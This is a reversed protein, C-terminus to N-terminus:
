YNDIPFYLSKGNPCWLNWHADIKFNVARFPEEHNLNNQLLKRQRQGLLTYIAEKEM